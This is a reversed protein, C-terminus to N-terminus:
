KEGLYESFISNLNLPMYNTQEVSVNKYMNKGDIILEQNIEHLHGHINVYPMSVNLYMPEHSLWFWKNVCIPYESVFDFIDLWINKNKRDHNGLILFKKAKIKSFFRVFKDKNWFGVDGLVFLTDSFTYPTSLINKCITDDMEEVNKFPRNCYDIINKHGLHLDSIIYKM